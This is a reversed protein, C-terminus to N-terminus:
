SEQENKLVETISINLINCLKILESIKFESNGNLKKRLTDDKMRMQKSVYSFKLGKDKIVQKLNVM